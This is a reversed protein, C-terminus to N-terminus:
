GTGTVRPVWWAENWELAKASEIQFERERATRM